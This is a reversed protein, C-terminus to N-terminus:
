PSAEGMYAQWLTENLSGPIIGVSQPAGYLYTRTLNLPELVKEKLVDAFPKGAIKALIYALM